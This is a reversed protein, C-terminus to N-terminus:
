RHSGVNICRREEVFLNKPPASDVHAEVIDADKDRGPETHRCREEKGEKGILACKGRARCHSSRADHGHDGGVDHPRDSSSVVVLRHCHCGHQHGEVEPAAGQAVVLRPLPADERTDGVYVHNGRPTAVNKDKVHDSEMSSAEDQEAAAGGLQRVCVHGKIEDAGPASHLNGDNAPRWELRELLEPGKSDEDENDHILKNLAPALEQYSAV